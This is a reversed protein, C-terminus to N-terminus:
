LRKKLMKRYVLIANLVKEADEKTTTIYETRGDLINWGLHAEDPSFCVDERWAIWMGDMTNDHEYKLVIVKEHTGSLNILVMYLIPHEKIDKETIKKGKLKNKM